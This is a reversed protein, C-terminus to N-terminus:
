LTKLYDLLTQRSENKIMARSHDSDILRFSKPEKAAEFLREAHYIEVMEDTKSHIILVPIPSIAGIYDLPRYYNDVTFSLPWQFLYFMWSKALVDQVVNHYDSFAAITVLSKVRNRYASQAVSYIAMSGGLSHGIVILKENESLESVAYSIMLEMDSIVHDLEAEGESLGYGRYDFVYLDYGEKALWFTNPLQTSVNDGNGHFFLITGTKEKEAHIKWGHLELGDATDIFIDEYRLEAQDPTLPFTKVPYFLYNSCGSLFLLCVLFSFRIMVKLLFRRAFLARFYCLSLYPM